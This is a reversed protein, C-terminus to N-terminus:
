ACQTKDLKNIRTIRPAVLGLWLSPFCSLFRLPWALRRPFDIANAGQELGRVIRQAAEDPDMLGPMPFDNDRTMPTAVFGPRVSVVELRTRSLDAQVSQLFYDLAAKSAGYAEARPLGLCSSLSGVACFVPRPSNGLLPMAQRLTNVPGFYNADFVRRYSAVDLALGDDYECTGAAAVVLDLQDTIAALQRGAEDMGQDDAVDCPLVRIHSPFERALATLPERRRGSVVVFCDRAVLERVVAAGIGSGAGTVWALSGSFKRRRSM